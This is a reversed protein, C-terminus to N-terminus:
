RHHDSARPIVGLNLLLNDISSLFSWNNSNSAWNRKLNNELFKKADVPKFEIPASYHAPVLYSIGELKAVRDLWDLITAKSRPFVLREMVPAVQIKPSNEGM